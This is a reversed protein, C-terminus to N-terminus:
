KLMLRDMSRKWGFWAENCRAGNVEYSRVGLTTTEMFLLKM